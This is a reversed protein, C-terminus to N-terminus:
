ANDEVQPLVFREMAKAFGDSGNDDTVVNAKAKVEDSANGMAISLGSERFMLVDNPMDGITAIEEAPISLLRSLTRVVTGKNAAPHTVDLYYPQSRAASAGEGLQQQLEREARAVLDHDDGVGVIKVAHALAPGLDKTVTPPFKVTWAERAVHPAAENRVLWDRETYVWIDLGQQELLSATRRAAEPDLLHREIVSLAPRVFVGGNFGALPESLALPEILMAM